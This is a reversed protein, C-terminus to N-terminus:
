LKRITILMYCGHCLSFYKYTIISDSYILDILEDQRDLIEELVQNYEISNLSIDRKM